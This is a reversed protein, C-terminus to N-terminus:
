GQPHQGQLASGACPAGPGRSLLLFPDSGLLAALWGASDDNQPILLIDAASRPRHGRQRPRQLLSRREQQGGPVAPGPELLAREQPAAGLAADACGWLESGVSVPWPPQFVLAANHTCLARGQGPETVRAM